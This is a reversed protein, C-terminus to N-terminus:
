AAEAALIQKYLDTYIFVHGSRIPVLWNYMAARNITTKPVGWFESAEKSSPHECVVEYDQNLTLVPRKVTQMKIEGVEIKLPYNDTKYKFLYTGRVWTEWRLSDTICSRTINLEKSAEHGSEFERIFKGDNGYCLVPKIIKLRGKEAGWKPVKYGNAINRKRALEGIQKKTEESHKRGYFTGNVGKRNESQKKRREIDHMWKQGGGDGGKTMNMGLINDLYFSNLKKIWFIERENLFVDDCEEIIELKHTDWGYGKISDHIISKRKKSRWRYEWIRTKLRKTKGIYIRGTPSTIKYIVGM